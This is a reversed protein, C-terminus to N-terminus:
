CGGNYILCGLPAFYIGDRSPFGASSVARRRNTQKKRAVFAQDVPPANLFM